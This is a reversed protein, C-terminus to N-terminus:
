CLTCFRWCYWRSPCKLTQLPEVMMFGDLSKLSAVRLGSASTSVGIFLCSTISCDFNHFCVVHCPSQKGVSIEGCDTTSYLSLLGWIIWPFLLDLLHKGAGLVCIEWWSSSLLGFYQEFLLTSLLTGWQFFFFLKIFDFSLVSLYKCFHLSSVTM